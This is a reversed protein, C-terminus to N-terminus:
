CPDNVPASPSTVTSVVFSVATTCSPLVAPPVGRAFSSIDFTDEDFIAPLNPVSEMAVDLIAPPAKGVSTVTALAFMTSPVITAPSKALLATVVALIVSEFTVVALIASEFTVVALIASSATVVALIAPPATLVDSSASPPTVFVFSALM